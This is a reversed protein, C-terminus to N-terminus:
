SAALMDDTSDRFEDTNCRIRLYEKTFAEHSCYAPHETLV